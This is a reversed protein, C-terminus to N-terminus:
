APRKLEPAPPGDLVGRVYSVLQDATFPKEVHPQGRDLKLQRATAETAYGVFSVVGNEAAWARDARPDDILANTAITSRARVVEDLKFFMAPASGDSAAWSPHGASTMLELRDEHPHPTWIRAMVAGLHAVMLQACLELMATLSGAETFAIGVDRAFASLRNRELTAAEHSKRESIDRLLGVFQAGGAVPVRTLALEVPFRRGDAHETTMEVPLGPEVTATLTGGHSLADASTVPQTPQLWDDIPHGIVDARNPRSM